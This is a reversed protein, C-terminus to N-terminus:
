STKRTKIGTRNFLNTITFTKLRITGSIPLRSLGSLGGQYRILYLKKAPTMVFRHGLKAAKIAEQGNGQWGFIIANEPIKSNTLEDWGMVEKGKSQVYQGVRKM